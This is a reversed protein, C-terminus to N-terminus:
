RRGKRKAGREAKTAAAKSHYVRTHARCARLLIEYALGCEWTDRREYLEMAARELAALTPTIIKYRTVKVTFPHAKNWARQARLTKASATM